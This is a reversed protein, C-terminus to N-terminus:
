DGPDDPFGPMSGIAAIKDYGEVILGECVIRVDKPCQKRPWTLVERVAEALTTDEAPIAGGRLLRVPMDFGSQRVM